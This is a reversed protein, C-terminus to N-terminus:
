GAFTRYACRHMRRCSTRTSDSFNTLDYKNKLAILREGPPMNSIPELPQVLLIWLAVSKSRGQKAISASWYM